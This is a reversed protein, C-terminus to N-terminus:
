KREYGQPTQAYGEFREYSGIRAFLTFFPRSKVVEDPQVRKARQTQLFKRAEGMNPFTTAGGENQEPGIGWKIKIQM